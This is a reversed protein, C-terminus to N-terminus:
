DNESRRYADRIHQELEEELIGINEAETVVKDFKVLIQNKRMQAFEKKESVFNGKGKVSYVFGCRELETYAKQITNPNLSLEMAMSRVSPLKSDTEFIGKIILESIKEVIQEYIPRSDKLDLRIM